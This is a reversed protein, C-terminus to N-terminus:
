RDWAAALARTREAIRDLDAATLGEDVPLTLLDTRWPRDRGHGPPRGWDVPPRVGDAALAAALREAGPHRVVVCCTTAAVALGPLSRRLRESNDRRTAALGARDLRALVGMATPSIAGPAWNEDALEEARDLVALGGRGRSLGAERLATLREDAASRTLPPVRALGTVWAGDPVPLLKRLSAVHYDAPLHDDELIAHTEDVVLLHGAARAEALAVRLAPRARTGHTCSHLIAADPRAALAARLPEAALHTDTGTPITRVAIGELQFPLLMTLCHHDPALLVRVGRERLEGAVLALAQRGLATCM